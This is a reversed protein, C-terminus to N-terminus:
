REEASVFSKRILLPPLKVFSIVRLFIRPWWHWKIIPKEQRPFYFFFFPPPCTVSTFFLIARLLPNREVQLSSYLTTIAVNHRSIGPGFSKRRKTYRSDSHCLRACVRLTVAFHQTLINLEAGFIKTPLPSSHKKVTNGAITSECM